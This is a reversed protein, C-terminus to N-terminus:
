VNEGGQGQNETADELSTVLRYFPEREVTVQVIIGMREFLGLQQEIVDENIAETDEQNHQVADLIDQLQFHAPTSDQSQEYVTQLIRQQTPNLFQVLLASPTETPPILRDYRVPAAIMGLLADIRQALQSQTRRIDALIDAPLGPQELSPAILYERPEFSRAAYEGPKDQIPALIQDRAILVGMTEGTQTLALGRPKVGSKVHVPTGVIVDITPTDKEVDVILLGNSVSLVRANSDTGNHRVQYALLEQQTWFVLYATQIETEEEDESPIEASLTLVGGVVTGQADRVSRLGLDELTSPDIAVFSGQANVPALAPSLPRGEVDIIVAFSRVQNQDVQCPKLQLKTSRGKSLKAQDNRFELSGSATGDALVVDWEESFGDGFAELHPISSWVLSQTQHALGYTSSAEDQSLYVWGQPAQREELATALIGDPLCIAQLSTGDLDPDVVILSGGTGNEPQLRIGYLFAQGNEDSLTVRWEGKRYTLLADVLLPLENSAADPPQALDRSTGSPYGDQQLQFFWVPSSSPQATKHLVVLHAGTGNYPQMVDQPLSAIVELDYKLLEERLRQEAGGGFLIGRSVLTAARGDEELLELALATLVTETRKGFGSPIYANQIEAASRTGGFPPNMLLRSFQGSQGPLLTLASTIQIDADQGNLKLNSWGLTAWTPDFDCGYIQIDEVSQKQAEEWAAALLGGTGCTPDILKASARLDLLRGMATAVHHPTPYQGGSASKLLEPRVYYQFLKGADDNCETLAESLHDLISRLARFGLRSPPPQPIVSRLANNAAALERYLRDLQNTVSEDELTDQLEPWSERVLLLFGLYGAIQPDGIIGRSEFVGKAKRL